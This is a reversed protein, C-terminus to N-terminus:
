ANDYLAALEGVTNFRIFGGKFPDKGTREELEVVIVALALSDLPLEGLVRSDRKIEAETRELEPFSVGARSALKKVAEVFDRGHPTIPHSPDHGYAVASGSGCKSYCTWGKTVSDVSFNPDKGGHIPCPGRWYRGSTSTWKVTPFVDAPTLCPLVEEDLFAVLDRSGPRM